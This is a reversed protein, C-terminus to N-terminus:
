NKSFNPIEAWSLPPPGASGLNKDLNELVFKVINFPWFHSSVCGLGMTGRNAGAAAGMLLIDTPQQCFKGCWLYMCWVYMCAEFDLDLIMSIHMMFVHMMTLSRPVSIHMMYVNMMTLSWVNMCAEHDLIMSIHISIHMMCQLDYVCADPDLIYIVNMCLIMIMSTHMMCVRMMIVRSWVGLIAKDTPEDTREDTRGHCFKGCWVCMCCLCTDLIVSTHM